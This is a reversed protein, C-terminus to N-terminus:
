KVGKKRMKLGWGRVKAALDSFPSEPGNKFWLIDGPIAV